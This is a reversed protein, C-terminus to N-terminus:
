YLKSLSSRFFIYKFYGLVDSLNSIEMKNLEKEPSKKQEKMQAMNRQEENQHGGQAQKQTNNPLAAKVGQRLLM